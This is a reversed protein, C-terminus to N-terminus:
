EQLPACFMGVDTYVLGKAIFERENERFIELHKRHTVRSGRNLM